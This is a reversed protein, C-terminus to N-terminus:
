KTYKSGIQNLEMAYLSSTATVYLINGEKGGFEINSVLEPVLLQGIIEGKPNFCKIGKGASTWINGDKDSRFGDSFFPKFDYVLKQNNLKDQGDLEYVYLHKIGEGTDAIYLKKEDHSFAIGNPRDLNTTMVDLKNIKPNFRFVYSGGYEQEGLYGEYDSLIGYPPDTFWITDDSKVCVDNPSNFKKGEFQDIVISVNLNDDIKYICRGGHSCSILNEENDITNGNCFNSPNLFESVQDNFLKMMRNNPNDSWILMDNHPIYCPGEAWLTGQFLQTFETTKIYSNFLDSNKVSEMLSDKFKYVTPSFDKKNIM